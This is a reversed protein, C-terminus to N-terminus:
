GLYFWSTDENVGYFPTFWPAEASPRIIPTRNDLLQIDDGVRAGLLAHGVGDIDRGAFVGLDAVLWGINRLLAYKGVCHDECDGARAQFFETPSKWQDIVDEVYACTQTVYDNVARLQDLVPDGAVAAIEAPTDAFSWEVRDSLQNTPLPIPNRDGFRM